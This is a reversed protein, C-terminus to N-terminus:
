TPENAFEYGAQVLQSTALQVKSRPILVYDTNFTSIVFISIEVDALVQGLRAIVGIMGFDMTEVFQFCRWARSSKVNGPVSSQPCVITLEGPARVTAVFDGKGWDPIESNGDLQCVAFEGDLFRLKM